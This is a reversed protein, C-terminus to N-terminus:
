VALTFNDGQAVPWWTCVTINSIPCLAKAGRHARGEKALDPLRRAVMYRDMGTAHALQMSTMGPYRKVAAETRDKQAAHRGSRVLLAVAEHSGTIDTSRTLHSM